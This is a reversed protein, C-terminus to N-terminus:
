QKLSYFALGKKRVIANKDSFRHSWGGIHLLGPSRVCTVQFFAAQSESVENRM